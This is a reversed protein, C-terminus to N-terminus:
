RRGTTPRPRQSTRLGTTAPAAARGPGCPDCADDALLIQLRIELVWDGCRCLKQHTIMVMIMIMMMMMMMMRRRMMRMVMMMMMMMM